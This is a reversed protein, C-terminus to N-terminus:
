RRWDNEPHRWDPEDAPFGVGCDGCRWSITDMKMPRLIDCQIVYEAYLHWMWPIVEERPCYRGGVADLLEYPTFPRKAELMWEHLDDVIVQQLRTRQLGSPWKLEGM